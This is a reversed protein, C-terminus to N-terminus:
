NSSMKGLGQLQLNGNMRKVRQAETTHRGMGAGAGGNGKREGRGGLKRGGEAEWSQKIGRRLSNM